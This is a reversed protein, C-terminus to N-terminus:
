SWGEKSLFRKCFKVVIYSYEIYKEGILFFLCTEVFHNLMRTQKTKTKDLFIFIELTEWLNEVRYETRPDLCQLISIWSGNLLIPSVHLCLLLCKLEIIM